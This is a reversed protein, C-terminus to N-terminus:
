SRMRLMLYLGALSFLADPAWAAVQAPLYNVNGMQEFLQGVGLYAMAIAISIGIGGMAGRNGVLFGFPISILAMILAFLPVAFKKHYQVQLKVTDFGRERLYKLYQGLEQYNMQQNQKVAILFDDPDESIEPFSSVTFNNVNHEDIGDVDRVTGQEWVWQKISSQWRARNANIQRTLRFTKPDIEFVWPEIMLKESADFGRYYFIRYNHIIWKRDPRLYTQVPRGKIENHIGDQIQNARPIWSYDAAFLAASLLGSMLLVPLGLRRVSIGCAKFATVENNKTMVGFTMLVALLVSIPLTEYILLPTLFVHYVVVRSLPIHNKVIDGLLDFFNYVQSMTVFAALWLIFYFFFNSLVYTDMLQFAVFSFQRSVPKERKKSFRSILGTFWAAFWIRVNGILDRDGPSEMRAIMGVGALGFVANPLWSALEPSMSHSRALSTLSIYALYYCFFSLFIAWVYGASRGGKRSSAGLPIGVLALMFCAFPLAFRGHLEIRADISEQSKPPQTKIFAALQRTLMERYANAKQQQPPTQQLVTAARPALSHYPAEHVSEDRMDLQIRNHAQDPHAIAERALTVKPGTPQEKLGTKRQAPPTLDAIFVGTWFAPGLGSIVNDVYLVTNENSFQEQFVRPVVEATIQSPGLKNRLKYQARIALPNLWVACAGAVLMALSAFILVPVAVVRSSVGGSRMAIMENDSSMRGLGILIGVLVGFPISLLLVPPLALVCLELFMPGNGSRVLLEVLPAINRLFIVFTALVIALFSSAIIERFVYRGLIRM